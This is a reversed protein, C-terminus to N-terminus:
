FLGSGIRHKQTDWLSFCLLKIIQTSMLWEKLTEIFKSTILLM